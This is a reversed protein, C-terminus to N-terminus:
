HQVCVHESKARHAYTAFSVYPDYLNVQFESCRLNIDPM